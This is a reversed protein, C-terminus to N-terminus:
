AGKNQTLDWKTKIDGKPKGTKHDTETYTWEITGYSFSVEELPLKGDGQSSGYRVASVIADTLLYQMYKAKDGAARWLELKIEGIHAGNSCFLALKPSSKDLAKTITFDGHDCREAARGGATSVSGSSPQSLGHHFSEIEIWKEHGKDSSEGEIGKIQLFADFAM